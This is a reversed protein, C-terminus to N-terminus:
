ARVVGEITGYNACWGSVVTRNNSTGTYTLQMEITTTGGLDNLAWNGGGGSDMASSSISGNYHTARFCVWGATQGTLTNVTSAGIGYIVCPRWESASANVWFKLGESAANDYAASMLMAPLGDVNANAGIGGGVHFMSGANASKRIWNAYGTGGIKIGPDEYGEGVQVTSSSAEFARAGGSGYIRHNANLKIGETNNTGSISFVGDTDFKFKEVGDRSLIHNNGTAGYGVNSTSSDDRLSVICNADTSEGYLVNNGTGAKVSLVQGDYGENGAGIAIGGHHNIKLHHQFTSDDRTWFELAGERGGVNTWVSKISSGYASTTGTYYGGFNIVGHVDDDAPSATFHLMDMQAGGAGSNTSEIRIADGTGKIHLLTTPSIGIGFNGGNFYSPGDTDIVVTNTGEAKMRIYAKDLNVGTSGRNGILVLEYDGSNIIIDEGDGTLNLTGTMTGGALPLKAAIANTVTTNFNADDNLAAAIENLTNMTGPASDVLSDIAATVFATTAIRTTNNGASQTTTTPNGALAVDDVILESQVKTTAM